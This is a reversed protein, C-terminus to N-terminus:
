SDKKIIEHYEALYSDVMAMGSYKKSYRFGNKGMEARMERSAMMRSLAKAISEPSQPEVLLACPPDHKVVERLGNIDSAVVPLSASMAEVAALGFGEWLSPILFIDASSLVGRVQDIHGLFRVKDAIALSESLRKLSDAEDGDGAIWYEFCDESLLAVARLANAYNKAATLRGVSLIVIKDTKKSGVGLRDDYEVGNYIIRVRSDLWTLWEVLEKKVGRSIAYVFCYESYSIADIFKGYWTDRRRNSTSHETYLLPSHLFGIKKLFALYFGAPFLHAHVIDDDDVHRSVYHLLEVFAGISYPNGFLGSSAHDLAEAKSALRTLGYLNSDIGRKLLSQHLLRVVREAGGAKLSYSNIIHHIRM